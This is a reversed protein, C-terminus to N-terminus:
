IRMSRDSDIGGPPETMAAGGLSRDLAGSLRRASQAAIPSQYNAGSLRRSARSLRRQERSRPSNTSPTSNTCMRWAAIADARSAYVPQPTLDQLPPTAVQSLGADRSVPSRLAAIAEARSTHVRRNISDVSASSILQTPPGQADALVSKKRIAETRARALRAM